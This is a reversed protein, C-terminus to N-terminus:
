ADRKPARLARPRRNRQKAGAPAHKREGARGCGRWAATRAGRRRVRRPVRWVGRRWARARGAGAPGKLVGGFAGFRRWAGERAAASGGEGACCACARVCVKGDQALEALRAAHRQVDEYGAVPFVGFAIGDAKFLARLTRFACVADCDASSVLVSVPAEAADAQVARYVDYFEEREVLM